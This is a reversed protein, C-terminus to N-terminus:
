PSPKPNPKVIKAPNGAATAGAPVDKTVVAGAGIVAGDGLTVGKLIIARTGIFCKEGISVPKAAAAPDTLWSGDASRPHFDTDLIMAGGGIQTGAGIEVRVACSIIASSMGVSDHIILEAGSALTALRCRGGESLPNAMASSCLVVNEGLRITTGRKRNIGPRGIAILGCGCEVGRIRLYLRWFPSGATLAKAKCNGLFPM